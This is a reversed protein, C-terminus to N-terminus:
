KQSNKFSEFALTIKQILDKSSDKNIAMCIEAQGSLDITFLKTVSNIPLNMKQLELAMGLDSNIILDIRGAILKNTNISMEAALDLQEGVKFDLDQLYAQSWDGRILGIVFQKAQEINNVQISTNKSMKYFHMPTPRTIPCYWYFKNAREDTKYISYILTNKRHAAIQFSRAWPYVHTKYTIDTQALIEKIVKTSDGILKGQKNLYNYPPWNETVVLLEEKAFALSFNIILLCFLFFKM